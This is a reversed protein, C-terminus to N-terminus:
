KLFSSLLITRVIKDQPSIVLCLFEEMMRVLSAVQELSRHEGWVHILTNFTVVSPAVGERSKQNFM